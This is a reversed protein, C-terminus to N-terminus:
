SHMHTRHCTCTDSLCVFVYSCLLFRELWISFLECLFSVEETVTQAREKNKWKFGTKKIEQLAEEKEPLLCLYKPRECLLHCEGAM